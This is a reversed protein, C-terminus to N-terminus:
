GRQWAQLNAADLWGGFSTCWMEVSLTNPACRGHAQAAQRQRPSEQRTSTTRHHRTAERKLTRSIGHAPRKPQANLCGPRCCSASARFRGWRHATPREIQPTRSWQDHVARETRQVPSLARLEPTSLVSPYLRHACNATRQCKQCYGRQSGDRHHQKQKLNATEEAPALPDGLTEHELRAFAANLGDNVPRPEDGPSCRDWGTGSM